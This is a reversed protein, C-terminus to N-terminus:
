GIQGIELNGSLIEALNEQAHSRVSDVDGRLVEIRNTERDIIAVSHVDESSVLKHAERRADDSNEAYNGLKWDPEGTGVVVFRDNSKFM